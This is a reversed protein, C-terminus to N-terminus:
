VVACFIVACNYIGGSVFNILLVPVINRVPM